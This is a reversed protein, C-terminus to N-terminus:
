GLLVVVNTGSDCSDGRGCFDYYSTSHRGVFFGNDGGQATCGGTGGCNRGDYYCRFFSSSSQFYHARLTLGADTTPLYFTDWETDDRGKCSQSMMGTSTYTVGAALKIWAYGVRSRSGTGVTNTTEGRTYWLFQHNDAGLTQVIADIQSDSLKAVNNGFASNSVTNDIISSGGLEDTSFYKQANSNSGAACNSCGGQGIRWVVAYGRGGDTEMDCHVQFPAVGSPNISYTGSPAYSDAAKYSSCSPHM